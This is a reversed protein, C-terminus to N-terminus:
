KSWILTHEESQQPWFAENIDKMKYKCQNCLVEKGVIFFGLCFKQLKFHLFIAPVLFWCFLLVFPTPRMQLPKIPNDVGAKRQVLVM